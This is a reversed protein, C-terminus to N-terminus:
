NRNIFRLKIQFIDTYGLMVRQPYLDPDRPILEVAVEFDYIGGQTTLPLYQLGSPPNNWLVDGYFTSETSMVLPENKLFGQEVSASNQFPLRLSCLIRSDSHSSIMPSFSIGSPVVLRIAEFMSFSGISVQQDNDIYSGKGPNLFQYFEINDAGIILQGEHTVTSVDSEFLKSSEFAVLRYYKETVINQIHLPVNDDDTTLPGVVAGSQPNIINFDTVEGEVLRSVMSTPSGYNEAWSWTWNVGSKNPVIELMLPMKEIGVEKQNEVGDTTLYSLLGMDDVMPKSIILKSINDELVVIRWGGNPSTCLIYPQPQDGFGVNFYQMFDNPTYSAVPQDLTAQRRVTRRRIEKKILIPDSSTDSNKIFDVDGNADLVEVKVPSRILQYINHRPDM